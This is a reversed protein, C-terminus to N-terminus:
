VVSIKVLVPDHGLTRPGMRAYLNFEGLRAADLAEVSARGSLWRGRLKVRVQPDATLNKVFSAHEGHVAILWITDDSAPGMALPVRRPQGSRRGTTELIVWWPAIGAAFRLALPNTLRWIRRALVHRAM